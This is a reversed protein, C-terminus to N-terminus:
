TSADGQPYTTGRHTSDEFLYNNVCKWTNYHHESACSDNRSCVCADSTRGGEEGRKRRQDTNTRRAQRKNEDVAAACHALVRAITLSSAAAARAASLCSVAEATSAALAWAAAASAAATSRSAASM